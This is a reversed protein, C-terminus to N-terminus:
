SAVARKLPIVPKPAARLVSRLVQDKAGHAQIRGGAMILVQDVGELASPRHAIVVVIAGGARSSLIAQTLAADGEADLNSNPEDLVILFPNGFLARALAIRQRQGASLANGNEGVETAYGDPLRLILDHVGAAQAAGVVDEPDAEPDFRAINQAVSGSFLEIEQPLYGIHRGLVHPDWQALAAGDIRVQGRAPAWIGVLARALSSKGSAAPGIIGLGDGSTLTFSADQVAAARAGPPIVSLGEVAVAKEPAPLDMPASQPPFLALIVKLRHWSQRAAVFIKWQGIVLEVPALARSALISAAIIIGGSAEQHIVLYAGVALVGSQLMMRLIKSMGGLLGALDTARRNADLYRANFSEWRAGMRGLMGMAHLVGSNRRSAAALANRAEGHVAAAKVPERVLFESLVTLAVLVIAGVLVTAGLWVHFAFCIILYLLLWPLDFLAAPGGTGMFARIQDLDRLSQLGDGVNPGKRALEVTANYIRGSLEADLHGGIRILVRHRILDLIGLLVFLAGALLALGILTPTSRSPLVRDYVQLMFMAGTLMLINIVGTFLAVGGFASRCATMARVLESQGATRSRPELRSPFM